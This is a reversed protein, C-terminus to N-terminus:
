TEEEDDAEEDDAEEDDWERTTQGGVRGCLFNPVDNEYPDFSGTQHPSFCPQAEVKGPVRDTCKRPRSGLTSEM